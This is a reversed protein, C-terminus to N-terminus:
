RETMQTFITNSIAPLIEANQSYAEDTGFVALIYSVKGDPSAVFAVEHRAKSTMGVKSAFRVDAPLAAGLFGAIPNNPQKKWKEPQLDRTLLTMMEQSRSTSVAKGAYLEYMLRAAQDTTTLSRIPQQQEDLMQLERGDPAELQLSHIPYNKQSISLGNYSAAQFFRNLQLRRKLWTEYETGSLTAGSTTQTIRDFIRSAADNDSHVIMATLDSTLESDPQLLGQELMAECAVLWFLKVVSAPYRPTQNQYGATQNTKLDILTISLPETPLGKSAALATAGDVIAQLAESPVLQPPQPVNYVLEAFTQPKPAVVAPTPQSPPLEVRAVSRQRTHQLSFLAAVTLGAIALLAVDLRKRLLLRVFPSRHEPVQYRRSQRQAFTAQRTTQTTTSALVSPEQRASRSRQAARPRREIQPPVPSRQREAIQARLQSAEARLQAVLREARALKAKLEVNQRQITEPKLKLLQRM